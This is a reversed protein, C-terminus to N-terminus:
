DASPDRRAPDGAAHQEIADVDGTLRRRLNRAATDRARELRDAQEILFRREVIHLNRQRRHTSARKVGPTVARAVARRLVARGPQEGADAEGPAFPRLRLIERVALPACELDRQREGGLRADQEEVLRGGSKAGFAGRPEGLEIASSLRVSVNTTMSCSM